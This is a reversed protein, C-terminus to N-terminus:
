EVGGSLGHGGAKDWIHLHEQHDAFTGSVEGM